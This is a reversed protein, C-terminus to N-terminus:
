QSKTKDIVSESNYEERLCYFKLLFNGEKDMPISSSLMDTVRGYVVGGLNKDLAYQTEGFFNKCLAKKDVDYCAIGYNFYGSFYVRDNECELFFESSIGNFAVVEDTVYDYVLLQLSTGNNVITWACLNDNCAVNSLYLDGEDLASSFGIIYNGGMDFIEFANDDNLLIFYDNSYMITKYNGGQLICEIIGSEVNYKYVAAVRKNETIKYLLINNDGALSLYELNAIAETLPLNEYGNLSNSKVEWTVNVKMGLQSNPNGEIAVRNYSIYNDSVEMDSISVGYSYGEIEIMEETLYNYCVLKSAYKENLEEESKEYWNEHSSFIYTYFSYNYYIWDGYVCYDNIQANQPLPIEFEMGKYTLREVEDIESVVNMCIGTGSLDEYKYVLPYAVVFEDSETSNETPLPVFTPSDVNRYCGCLCLIILICCGIAKKM